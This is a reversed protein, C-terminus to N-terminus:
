QSLRWVQESLADDNSQRRVPRSRYSYVTLAAGGVLAIFYPAFYALVVASYTSLAEASRIPVPAHVVAYAFAFILGESLLLTAFMLISAVAWPWHLQRLALAVGCLCNLLFLALTLALLALLVSTKGLGARLGPYERVVLPGVDLADAIALAFLALIGLTLLTIMVRM